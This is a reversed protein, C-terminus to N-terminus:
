ILNLKEAWKFYFYGYFNDKEEMLSLVVKDVITFFENKYDQPINIEFSEGDFNAKEDVERNVIDIAKDYLEKAQKQFNNEM